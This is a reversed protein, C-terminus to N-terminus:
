RSTSFVLKKLVLWEQYIIKVLVWMTDYYEWTRFADRWDLIHAAQTSYNLSRKLFMGWYNALGVSPTEM